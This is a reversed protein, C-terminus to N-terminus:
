TNYLKYSCCNKTKQDENERGKFAKTKWCLSVEKTLPKHCLAMVDYYFKINLYEECSFTIFGNETKDWCDSKATPDIVMLEARSFTMSKVLGNLFRPM